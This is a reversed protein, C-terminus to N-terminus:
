SHGADSILRPYVQATMLGKAGAAAPVKAYGSCFHLCVPAPILPAQRATVQHAGSDIGGQEFYM